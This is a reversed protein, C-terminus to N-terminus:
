KFVVNKYMLYNWTLSVITGIAKAGNAVVVDHPLWASLGVSRITSAAFELPASWDTTLLHVMGTQLVYLGFATVGYFIIAQKIWSGRKKQFVVQKNAFFSFAMACTTSLINAPVVALGVFVFMVNFIAFDILTNLIGVLGFKGVQKIEETGPATMGDGNNTNLM